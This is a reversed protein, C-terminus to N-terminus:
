AELRTREKAVSPKEFAKRIGESCKCGSGCGYGARLIIPQHRPISKKNSGLALITQERNQVAKKWAHLQPCWHKTSQLIVQGERLLDWRQVGSHGTAARQLSFLGNRKVGRSMDLRRQKSSSKKQEVVDKTPMGIVTDREM